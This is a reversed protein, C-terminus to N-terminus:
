ETERKITFGKAQNLVLVKRKGAVNLTVKDQDIRVVKAGSVFDGVAVVQENIVARNRQESTLVQTLRYSHASYTKTASVQGFGPPKMPDALASSALVSGVLVCSGMFIAKLPMVGGSVSQNNIFM